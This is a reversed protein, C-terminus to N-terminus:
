VNVINNIVRFGLARLECGGAPGTLRIKIFRQSGVPISGCLNNNEGAAWVSALYKESTVDSNIALHCEANSGWLHIEFDLLVNKGQPLFSSLDVTREGSTINCLASNNAINYYNNDIEIKNNGIQLSTIM